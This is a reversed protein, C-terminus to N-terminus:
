NQLIYQVTQYENLLHFSEIFWILNSICQDEQLLIYIAIM